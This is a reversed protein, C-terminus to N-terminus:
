LSEKPKTKIPTSYSNDKKTRELDFTTNIVRKYSSNLTTRPDYPTRNTKPTTVPEQPIDLTTSKTSKLHAPRYPLNKPDLATYSTRSYSNDTRNMLETLNGKSKSTYKLM